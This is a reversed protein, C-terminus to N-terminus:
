VMADEEEKIPEELEGGSMLTMAKTYEMDDKEPM